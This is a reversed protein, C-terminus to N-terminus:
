FKEILKPCFNLYDASVLSFKTEGCEGIFAGSTSGGHLHGYFCRKVQEENLVNLLEDCKQVVSLPPYHLFAIIEGGLKKGEAISMRLRGAERRVVKMDADAEADYFWGRTGCITYDGFRFANNHLIKISTLGNEDLFSDMKKKTNWWYDHNGKSIIKTGPLSHLFEFDKKAGELSMAWSIDGPIVVVDKESVVAKWNKEIREVHDNWGYFVSM